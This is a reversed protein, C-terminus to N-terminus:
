WDESDILRELAGIRRPVIAHNALLKDKIKRDSSLALEEISYLAEIMENGYGLSHVYMDARYENKRSNIAIFFNIIFSFVLLIIKFLGILIAAGAGGQIIAAAAAGKLESM